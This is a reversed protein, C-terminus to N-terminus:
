GASGPDKRGVSVGLLGRLFQELGFIGPYESTITNIVADDLMGWVDEAMDAVKTGPPLAQNLAEQIKLRLRMNAGLWYPLWAFRLVLEGEYDPDRNYDLLHM